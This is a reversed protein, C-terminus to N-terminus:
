SRFVFLDHKLFNFYHAFCTFAFSLMFVRAFLPLLSICIIKWSTILRYMKKDPGSQWKAQYAKIVESHCGIKYLKCTISSRVWLCWTGIFRASVFGGCAGFFCKLMRPAELLSEKKIDLALPRQLSHWRKWAGGLYRLTKCSAEFVRGLVVVKFNCERPLSVHQVLPTEERFM